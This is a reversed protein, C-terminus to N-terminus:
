LRARAQKTHASERKQRERRTRTRAHPHAHLNAHAHRHAHAHAHAHKALAHAHAHQAHTRMGTRMYTNTHTRADTHKHTCGATRRPFTAAFIRARVRARARARVRVRVRAFACACARVCARVRACVKDDWASVNDAFVYKSGDGVEDGEWVAATPALPDRSIASTSITRMEFLQTILLTGNSCGIGALAHLGRGELALKSTCAAIDIKYIRGTVPFAALLSEGSCRTSIFPVTVGTGAAVYLINPDASDFCLDNPCPIDSLVSKVSKSKLDIGVVKNANFVCVWLIGDASLKSGYSSLDSPCDHGLSVNMVLSTVPLQENVDFARVSLQGNSSTPFYVMAKGDKRKADWDRNCAVSEVFTVDSGTGTTVNLSVFRYGEPKLTVTNWPKSMLMNAHQGTQIEPGVGVAGIGRRFKESEPGTSSSDM